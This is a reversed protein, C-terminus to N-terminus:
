RTRPAQMARPCSPGHIKCRDTGTEKSLSTAVKDDVSIVPIHIDVGAEIELDVTGTESRPPFAPWDSQCPARYPM